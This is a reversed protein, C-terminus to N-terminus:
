NSARLREIQLDALFPILPHVGLAVMAPVDMRLLLERQEGDLSYRAAFAARDAIFAARQERDHAIQHLATTLLVLAPHINPYHLTQTSEKETFWALSAYNHHWSPEM